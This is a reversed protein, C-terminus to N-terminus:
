WNSKSFDIVDIKCQDGIGLENLTKEYDEQIIHSHYIFSYLARKNEDIGCKLFFQYILDSFKMKPAGFVNIKFRDLLFFINILRNGTVFVESGSIMQYERLSKGDKLNLEIANYLFYLEENINMNMLERFKLVVEAFIDDPHAEIKTIKGDFNFKIHFGEEKKIEEHFGQSKVKEKEYNSLPNMKIKINKLM